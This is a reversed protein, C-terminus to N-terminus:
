PLLRSQQNLFACQKYNDEDNQDHRSPVQLPSRSKAPPFREQVRSITNDSAQEGTARSVLEKRQLESKTFRMLFWRTLAIM